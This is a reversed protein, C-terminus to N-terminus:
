IRVGNSFSSIDWATPTTTGGTLLDEPVTLLPASTRRGNGDLPLALVKWITEELFDFSSPLLTISTSLSIRESVTPGTRTPPHFYPFLISTSHRAPQRPLTLPSRLLTTATPLGSKLSSSLRSSRITTPALTEKSLSLTRLGFMMQLILAYHSRLGPLTRQMFRAMPNSTFRRM